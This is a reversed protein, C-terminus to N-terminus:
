CRRREPPRSVHWWTSRRSMPGTCTGEFVLVAPDGEAIAEIFLRWAAFAEDHDGISGGLKHLGLLPRLQSEM